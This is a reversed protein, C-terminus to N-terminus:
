KTDSEQPKEERAGKKEALWSEPKLAEAGGPIRVRRLAQSQQAVNRQGDDAPVESGMGVWQGMGTVVWALGAPLWCLHM